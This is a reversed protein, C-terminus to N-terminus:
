DTKNLQQRRNTLKTRGYVTLSDRQREKTLLVFFIIENETVNYTQQRDTHRDIDRM